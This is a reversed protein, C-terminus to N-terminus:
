RNQIKEEETNKSRRKLDCLCTMYLFLTSWAPTVDGTCTISTRYRIILIKYAGPIDYWTSREGCFFIREESCGFMLWTSYKYVCQLGSVEIAWVGVLWCLGTCVDFPLSQAAKVVKAGGGSFATVYRRIMDSCLMSYIMGPELVQIIDVLILYYWVVDGWITYLSIISCWTMDYWPMDYWTGPVQHYDHWLGHLTTNSPSCGIIGESVALSLLVDDCSVGWSVLWYWTYDDCWIIDYRVIYYLMICLISDSWIFDYRIMDCWTDRWFWSIDCWMTGADGTAQYTTRTGVMILKTPELRVSHM